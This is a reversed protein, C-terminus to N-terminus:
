KSPSRPDVDFYAYRNVYNYEALYRDSDALMLAFADLFRGATAYDLRGGRCARFVIREIRRMDENWIAISAHAIAHSGELSRHSRSLNQLIETAVRGIRDAILADQEDGSARIGSVIQSFVRAIQEPTMKRWREMIRTSFDKKLGELEENTERLQDANISARSLDADRSESRTDTLRQQGDDDARYADINQRGGEFSAALAAAAFTNKLGEFRPM